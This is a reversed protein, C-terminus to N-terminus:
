AQSQIRICRATLIHATFTRGGGITRHKYGGGGPGAVPHCTADQSGGCLHVMERRLFNWESSTAVSRDGGMPFWQRQCFLGAHQEDPRERGPGAFDARGCRRTPVRWDGYDGAKTSGRFRDSVALPVDPAYPAFYLFFPRGGVVARQGIFDVAKKTLEPLFDKMSISRLESVGAAKLEVKDSLFAVPKRQELILGESPTLTGWWQDFGRDAPGGSVKGPM